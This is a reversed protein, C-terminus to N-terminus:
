PHSFLSIDSLKFDVPVSRVAGSASVTFLQGQANLFFNSGFVRIQGFDQAMGASTLMGNAAVTYLGGLYFFYNGGKKFQNGRFAGMEKKSYAFGDSSVTYVVHQATTFYRGGTVNIDEAYLGAVTAEEVKGEGTVIFLQASKEGHEKKESVVYNGGQFKIKRFEKAKDLAFLFGKEDITYIRGFKSIFYNEGVYEVKIPAKEDKEKKYMLGQTDVTRVKRDEDILFRGGLNKIQYPLLFNSLDNISGQDDITIIKGTKLEIMSQSYAQLSMLLSLALLLCKM